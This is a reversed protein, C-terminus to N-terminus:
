LDITNTQIPLIRQNHAKFICFNGAVRRRWGRALPRVVEGDATFVMYCLAYVGGGWYGNLWNVILMM